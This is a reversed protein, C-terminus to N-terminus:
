EVAKKKGERKSQFVAKSKDSQPSVVQQATSKSIIIMTNKSKPRGILQSSLDKGVM